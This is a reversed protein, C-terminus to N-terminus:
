KKKEKKSYNRFFNLLSIIIVFFDRILKKEGNIASIYASNYAQSSNDINFYEDFIQRSCKSIEDYYIKNNTISMINHLNKEYNHCTFVNRESFNTKFADFFNDSDLLVPIDGNKNITLIPISLSAAEMLGRGTGIVADAIYLMKSAETTYTPDTLFIVSGNKVLIHGNLKEFIDYDEIVGVVYLKVNRINKLILKEILLVSDIISKNYSAGIRCIRLFVFEDPEKKIPQFITNPLLSKVRNPILSINSHLYKKKNKFWVFNENSFLIINHIHPYKIPNPGGCKNLIIKHKKSSVLLRIINYSGVDFCHYIDPYFKSTLKNIEAKLHLLNFGNFDIHKFFYPNSTIISSKGPGISIIKVDNNEGIKRSIHNLSHFHGGRGHGHVSIIFLIKM